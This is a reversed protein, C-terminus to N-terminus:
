QFHKKRFQIPTQGEAKKFFKVFYSPDNFSLTYAIESISLETHLIYRKAEILIRNSIIESASKDGHRRCAANVNQPTTSLLSAFHHVKTLSPVETQVLEMFKDYLNNPKNAISRSINSLHIIRVILIKLYNKIIEASYENTRNYEILMDEFTYTPSYSPPLNIQSINQLQNLQSTIDSDKLNNFLSSKFMVVFGKPISTFQWYHLQGPKLIYFEPSLIKYQVEEIQHFGEGESLYIIEFYNDHKHPKTRKIVEKFRSVKYDFDKDLKNKIEITESFM